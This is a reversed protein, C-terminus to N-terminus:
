ECSPFEMGSPNPMESIGASLRDLRKHIHDRASLDRLGSIWKSYRITEVIEIM